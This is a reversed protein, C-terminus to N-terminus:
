VERDLWFMRRFDRAVPEIGLGVTALKQRADFIHVQVTRLAAQPGGQPDDFYAAEILAGCPVPRGFSRALRDVVRRQMPSLRARDIERALEAEGDLVYGCCPCRRAEAGVQEGMAPRASM